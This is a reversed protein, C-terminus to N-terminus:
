YIIPDTDNITGTRVLKRCFSDYIPYGFVKEGQFLCITPGDFNTQIVFEPCDVNQHLVSTCLRISRGTSHRGCRRYWGFPFSHRKRFVLFNSKRDILLQRHEFRLQCLRSVPLQFANQATHIGGETIREFVPFKLIFIVVKAATKQLSHVVTFVFCVVPERLLIQTNQGTSGSATLLSLLRKGAAATVTQCGIRCFLGIIESSGCAEAQTCHQVAFSGNVPVRRIAAYQQVIRGCQLLKPFLVFALICDTCQDCGAGM